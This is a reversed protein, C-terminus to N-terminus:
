GLLYGDPRNKWYEPDSAIKSFHYIAEELTRKGNRNSRNHLTVILAGMSELPIFVDPCKMARLVTDICDYFSHTGFETSLLSNLALQEREYNDLLDKAKLIRAIPNNKLTKTNYGWRKM